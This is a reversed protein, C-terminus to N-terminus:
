VAGDRASARQAVAADIYARAAALDAGSLLPGVTCLILADPYAARVRELLEVYAAVFEEESPDVATSLDNTGLNIVVAHPQYRSFDWASDARAPLTRGIFDPMPESCSTPEDGYNCA